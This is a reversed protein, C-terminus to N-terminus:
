VEWFTISWLDFNLFLFKDNESSEKWTSSKKKIKTMLHKWWYISLSKLPHVQWWLTGTWSDQILVLSIIEQFYLLRTKIALISVPCTSQFYERFARPLGQANVSIRTQLLTDLARYWPINQMSFKSLSNM